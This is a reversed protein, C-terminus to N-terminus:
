RNPSLVVNVPNGWLPMVVRGATAYGDKSFAVAAQQDSGTGPPATCLVYRGLSDSLTTSESNAEIEDPSTSHWNAALSVLVGAVPRSGTATQEVVTGSVNNSGIPYSDPVGTTSLVTKAVVDVDITRNPNISLWVSGSPCPSMYATPEAAAISVQDGQVSASYRGDADSTVVDAIDSRVTLVVGAAPRRGSATHEVVVGSITFPPKQPLLPPPPPPPVKTPPQTTAPRSDNACGLAAATATLLGSAVCAIPLLLNRRRRLM